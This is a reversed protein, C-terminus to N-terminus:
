GEIIERREYLRCHRLSLHCQVCGDDLKHWYRTPNLGSLETMSAVKWLCEIKAAPRQCAPANGEGM